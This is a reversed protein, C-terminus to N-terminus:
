VFCFSILSVHNRNKTIDLLEELRFRGGFKEPEIGVAMVTAGMDHLADAPVQTNDNVNVQGDTMILVIDAAKPRNGNNAHLIVDAAHGLAIGTRTGVGGYPINEIANLLAAADNTNQLLIQTAVDPRNNYRFVAFQTSESSMFKIILQVTISKIRRWNDENVSSSADLIIVLDTPVHPPCPLVCCPADDTWTTNAQCTVRNFSPPYIVHAPDDCTALCDSNVNNGDSCVANGGRINFTPCTLLECTPFPGSWEEIDTCTVNSSESPTLGYGEACAFSCVSNYENGNTCSYEAMGVTPTYAPECTTKVCIPSEGIWLAGTRGGPICELTPIPLISQLKYGPFPDCYFECISGINFDDSCLVERNAIEELPPCTVPEADKLPQPGNEWKFVEHEFDYVCIKTFSFGPSIVSIHTCVSNYFWSLTCELTGGVYQPLAEILARCTGNQPAEKIAAPPPPADSPAQPTTPLTGNWCGILNTDDNCMDGKCCCFCFSNKKDERCNISNQKLNNQCALDQKCLKTITMGQPQWYNHFRLVTQCSGENANCRSLKGKTLCEATSKAETCEYCMLGTAYNVTLVLVAISLLKM